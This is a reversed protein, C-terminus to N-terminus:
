EINQIQERMQEILVKMTVAGQRLAISESKASLTNAERNLEQMLFDLHRGSAESAELANEVETIHTQLRDLEESVDMRSLMLAVEQEIRSNEVEFQLAQLRSLLKSRAQKENSIVQEKATKVEDSLQQLRSQVHAKLAEGEVKRAALLAMLAEQFLQEAQKAMTAIDPQALQVVGPWTLLTTLSLDYPLQKLKALTNASKVLGNVLQEDICMLQHEGSGAQFKCQCEVKGRSLQARMLSRLSGELSRLEEPLRFSVDLYRHNVSKIEWYLVGTDLQKQVSAFATMSYTM